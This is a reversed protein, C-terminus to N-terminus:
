DSYELLRDQVETDMRPNRLAMLEFSNKKTSWWKLHKSNDISGSFKPDYLVGQKRQITIEVIKRGRFSDRPIYFFYFEDTIQNYAVVRLPGIKKDCGKIRFSLHWNGKKVDNMRSQSVTVKADSNDDYDRGTGLVIRISQNVSAIALECLDEYNLMYLQAETMNITPCHEIIKEVFFTKIRKNTAARRSYHILHLRETHM